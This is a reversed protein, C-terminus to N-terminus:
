DRNPRDASRKPVFGKFAELCLAEARQPDGTVFVAAQVLRSQLAQLEQLHQQIQDHEPYQGPEPREFPFRGKALENIYRGHRASVERRKRELAGSIRDHLDYAEMVAVYREVMQGNLAEADARFPHYHTRWQPTRDLGGLEPPYYSVTLAAYAYLSEGTEVDGAFELPPPPEFIGLELDKTDVPYRLPENMEVRM